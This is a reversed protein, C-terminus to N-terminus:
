WKTVWLVLFPTDEQSELYEASLRDRPQDLVWNRLTALAKQVPGALIASISVQDHVPKEERSAAQDLLACLCWPEM